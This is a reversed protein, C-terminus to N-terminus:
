QQFYLAFATLIYEGVKDYKHYIVLILVDRSDAVLKGLIVVSSVELATAQSSIM